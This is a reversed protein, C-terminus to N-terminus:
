SVAPGWPDAHWSKGLGAVLELGPTATGKIGSLNEGAGSQTKGRVEGKEVGCGKANKLEQTRKM